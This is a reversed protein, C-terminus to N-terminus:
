GKCEWGKKLGGCSSQGNGCGGSGSEACSRPMRRRFSRGTATATPPADSSPSATTQWPTNWSKRATDGWFVRHDLLGFAIGSSTLFQPHNTRFGWCWNFFRHAFFWGCYRGVNRLDKWLWRTTEYVWPIWWSFWPSESTKIIFDCNKLEPFGFFIIFDGNDDLCGNHILIGVPWYHNDLQNDLIITSLPRSSHHLSVHFHHIIIFGRTRVLAAFHFIM